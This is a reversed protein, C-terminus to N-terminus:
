VWLSENKQRVVKFSRFALRAKFVEVERMRKPGFAEFLDKRRIQSCHGVIIEKLKMGKCFPQFFIEKSDFDGQLPVFHRYEREYRWHAYKTTLLRKLEGQVLEPNSNILEVNIAPRKSVYTVRDLLRDPIDFGLCLGKHRDAYHSWQVPNQWSASFCLLGMRSNISQKIFQFGHWLERTPCSPGLLEFPDNLGSIRAIKLQRYRLDQLGYKRNLFHYVRM